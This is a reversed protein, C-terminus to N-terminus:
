KVITMSHIELAEEPYWHPQEYAPCSPSLCELKVWRKGERTEVEVPGDPFISRHCQYCPVNTGRGYTETPM